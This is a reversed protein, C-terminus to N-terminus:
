AVPGRPERMAAHAQVLVDLPLWPSRTCVAADPMRARCTEPTGTSMVVRIGPRFEGAQRALRHGGIEGALTATTLLLVFDKGGERLADVAAAGNACAVVDLDTEGLLTEARDRVAADGDVVLAARKSVANHM